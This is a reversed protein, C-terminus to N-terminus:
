QSSAWMQLLVLVVLAILVMQSKNPDVFGGVGFGTARNSDFVENNRKQVHRIKEEPFAGFTEQRLARYQDIEQRYKNGNSFLEPGAVGFGAGAGVNVGGRRPAPGAGGGRMNERLVDKQLKYLNKLNAKGQSKSGSELVGAIFPRSGGWNFCQHVKLLIGERGGQITEQSEEITQIKLNKGSPIDDSQTIMCQMAHNPSLLYINLEQNMVAESSMMPLKVKMPHNIVVAKSTHGSGRDALEQISPQFNGGPKIETDGELDLHLKRFNPYKKSKYTVPTQDDILALVQEITKGPIFEEHMVEYNLSNGDPFGYKDRIEQVLQPDDQLVRVRVEDPIRVLFNGGGGGPGGGGMKLDGNVNSPPSAMGGVGALRQVVVEEGLEPFGIKVRQDAGGLEHTVVLPRDDVIISSFLENLNEKKEFVEDLFARDMGQIKDSQVLKESRKLAEAIKAMKNISYNLSNDYQALFDMNLSCNKVFIRNIYDYFAFSMSNWFELTRYEQGVGALRVKLSNLKRSCYDRYRVRDNLLKTMKATNDGQPGFCKVTVKRLNNRVEALNKLLGDILPHNSRYESKEFRKLSHLMKMDITAVRDLMELFNSNMEGDEQYYREFAKILLSFSKYIKKIHREETVDFNNKLHHQFPPWDPDFKLGERDPSLENYLETIRDLKENKNLMYNDTKLKERVDGLQRAFRLVGKQNKYFEKAFFNVMQTGRYRNYASLNDLTRNYQRHGEALVKEFDAVSKFYKEENRRYDTLDTVLSSYTRNKKPGEIQSYGAYSRADNYVNTAAQKMKNRSEFLEKIIRNFDERFKITQMMDRCLEKNETQLYIQHMQQMVSSPQLDRVKMNLSRAALGAEDHRIQQEIFKSNAVTSALDTSPDGTMYAAFEYLAQFLSNTLEYLFWKKDGNLVMFEVINDIKNVVEQM